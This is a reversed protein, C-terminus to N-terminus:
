PAPTATPRPVPTSTPRVNPTATPEPTPTAAVTWSDSNHCRSCQGRSHGSPRSHCAKCNTYTQHDFDIDGWSGTSHCDSCQDPWHGSPRSHCAQCDAGASHDVKIDYWTTTGHCSGCQGPYHGVPAGHCSACDSLGAHSFSIDLWNVTGNHCNSCQGGYHGGPASHCSACDALSDHSQGALSWSNVNHCDSCQGGWHGAPAGHCSACDSLGIHNSVSDGWSNTNHCRSCQESYHNSRHHCSRCDSLEKHSFIVQSWNDTNHCSSCQGSYHDARTHCSRCDFLGTHDMGVDDWSESSHCNECSGPYHNEPTAAAHCVVCNIDDKHGYKSIWWNEDVHCTACTLPYVGHEPAHCNGCETYGEHDFTAQEWDVTNHCKSCQGEYHDEPTEAVHCTDCTYFGDHHDFVYSNWDETDTHCSKCTRPKGDQLDPDTNNVRLRSLLGGVGPQGPWPEREIYAAHQFPTQEAHCTECEKVMVHDFTHPRWDDTTHCDDCVGTFHYPYTRTVPMEHCTDCGQPTSAYGGEGHCADCSAEAHAGTLAFFSHDFDASLFPVPVAETLANGVVQVPAAGAVVPRIRVKAIAQSLAVLLASCRDDVDANELATVVIEAQTLLSVMREEVPATAKPSEFRALDLHTLAEDLAGGFERISPELHGQKARALDALRREAIETTWSAKRLQGPTFRLKLQEATDQLEFLGNGPHFPYTEALFLLGGAAGVFLVNVILIAILIKKM